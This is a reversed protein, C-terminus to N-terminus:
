DNMEVKYNYMAEYLEKPILNKYEDAVQKIYNEKFQKYALFTEEITDYRGIFKQRSKNTEKDFIDCNAIYKRKEKDWQVGIPYKGRAKNRKCFLVNINNSVFICTEPSYVKNGKILIDKDLCMIEGDIEYYNKYYWKAFNQFNHWEDCVYCDIYSPFKSLYNSSYCRYIMSTWSVYAKTHVGNESTKYEGEGIYGIGYVSKHYPNKINGKVFTAYSTRVRAKHEDQFEVVIDIAKNYEIIKMEYHGLSEKSRNLMGLREKRQKESQIKKSNM